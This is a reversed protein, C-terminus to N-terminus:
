NLWGRVGGLFGQDLSFSMKFSSTYLPEIGTLYLFRCFDEIVYNVDYAVAQWVYHFYHCPDLSLGIKFSSVNWRSVAVELWYIQIWLPVIPTSDTSM